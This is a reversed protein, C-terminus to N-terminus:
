NLLGPKLTPGKKYLKLIENVPLAKNSAKLNAIFGNFGGEPCVLLDRNNVSPSGSLVCSKKLKGDISIDLVNNTIAINVSVWRQLPFYEIDCHDCGPKVNNTDHHGVFNENLPMANTSSDITDVSVIDNENLEDPDNSEDPEQTCVSKELPNYSTELNILVRLTNNNKLLYVGPNENTDNSHVSKGLSGKFLVCKDEANRYDYDNVYMWFNYNYSNRETSVPINGNSIRTMTKADHIYPVLEKTKIQSVKKSKIYRYAFFALLMVVLISVVIIIIITYDQPKKVSNNASPKNLVSNNMRMVPKNSALNNSTTNLPMVVKNSTAKTLSNNLKDVPSNLGIKLKNSNSTVNAGGRKPM